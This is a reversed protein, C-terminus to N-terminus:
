GTSRRLIVRNAQEIAQQALYNRLIYRPSVADMAAGPPTMVPGESRLRVRYDGSWRDFAGRDIFRDRLPADAAPDDMRLRGLDRFLNTYDVGSQAMAELLGASLEQDDERAERLGLKARMGASLAAILEPRYAALADRALEAAAEGDEHLLPLMAQALCTLNWLGVSPQRDFADRGHYDSHNCIFGPDYADLFGFPGYDLTLGLISMNDTNM